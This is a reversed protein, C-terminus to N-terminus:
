DDRRSLELADIWTQRRCEGSLERVDALCELAAAEVHIITM